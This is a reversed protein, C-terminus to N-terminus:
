TWRKMENCFVYKKLLIGAYIGTLAASLALMYNGTTNQILNKNGILTGFIVFILANIVMAYITIKLLLYQTGIVKTLYYYIVVGLVNVSPLALFGLLWSPERMFMMSCEEFTSITTLHLTKMTLSVIEEPIAIVIGIIVLELFYDSKLTIGGVM